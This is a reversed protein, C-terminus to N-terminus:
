VVQIEGQCNGCCNLTINDHLTKSHFRDTTKSRRQACAPVYIDSHHIIGTTSMNNENLLQLVYKEAPTATPVGCQSTPPRSNSKGTLKTSLSNALKHCNEALVNTAVNVTCCKENKWSLSTNLNSLIRYLETLHETREWHERLLGRVASGLEREYREQ